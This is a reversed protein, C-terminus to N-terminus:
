SPSRRKARDPSPAPSGSRAKRSSSCATARSAVTLFAAAAFAKDAIPDLMAGARSGGFRRALIGDVFDTAAAVGVIALQWGPQHTFPFLAALPLRLATVVDAWTGWPKM